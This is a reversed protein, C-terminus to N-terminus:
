REVWYELLTIEKIPLSKPVELKCEQNIRRLARAYPIRKSRILWGEARMDSVVNPLDSIGFFVLAELRTLQNGQLLFDRAAQAMGKTTRMM